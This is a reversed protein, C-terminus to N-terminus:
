YVWKRQLKYRVKLADMLLTIETLCEGDGGGGVTVNSLKKLFEYDFSPLYLPGDELDPVDNDSLYKLFLEDEIERVDTMDNSMMYRITKIIVDDDVSEDMWNRFFGYDKEAFHIRDVVTDDCGEEYLYTIVQQESDMNLDEGNFFMYCSKFKDKNLEEIVTHLARNHNGYNNYAPQFDVLVITKSSEM